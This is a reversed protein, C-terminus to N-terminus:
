DAVDQQLLLSISVPPSLYRHCFLDDSSALKAMWDAAHNGDRVIHSFRVCWSRNLLASISHIMSLVGDSTSRNKILNIAELCESEVLLYQSGISWAALLGEYIGWLEAELILCIGIRKSFGVIWAGGDDRILGGCSAVGDRSDLAGDSNLNHWGIPPKSWRVTVGPVGRGTGTACPTQKNSLGHIVNETFNIVFVM